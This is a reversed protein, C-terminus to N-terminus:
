RRRSCSFRMPRSTPSISRTTRGRRLARPVSRGRRLAHVAGLGRQLYEDRRAHLRPARLEQRDGCRRAHVAASAAHQENGAFTFATSAHWGNRAWIFARLRAAASRRPVAPRRRAHRRLDSQFRVAWARVSLRRQARVFVDRDPEAAPLAAQLAGRRRRVGRQRYQGSDRVRLRAAHQLLEECRRGSLLERDHRAPELSLALRRPEVHEFVSALLGARVRDRARPAGDPNGNPVVCNSDEPGANPNPQSSATSSCGAPLLLARDAAARPFRHRGLLARREVLASIRASAWAALEAHQRLDLLRCRVARGLPPPRASDAARRPLFVLRHEALAAPRHRAGLAIRAARLRRLRVRKRRVDPGVFPRTTARTSTRSTTRRCPAARSTSTTTTPTSTPRAANRLGAARPRLADYARIARPSTRREGPRRSRRLGPNAVVNPSSPSPSFRAPRDRAALSAPRTAPSETSRARSTATTASRLSAFGSTPASRSTTTSTSSASCRPLDDIRSARLVPLEADQDEDRARLLDAPQKGSRGLRVSRGSGGQQYDNGAFRTASSASREPRTSGARRRATPASRAPSTSTITRRPACRTSTSRAASRTAERLTPRGSDKASTSATSPRFPSSRSISIAPTGTM